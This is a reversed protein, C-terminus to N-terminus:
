SEYQVLTAMGAALHWLVHCHLYWVGPNDADFAVTLTTKPPVLVTDRLAGHIRKGNVEIVQFSHGHLHMPHSMGTDNFFKIAIRQGTRVQVQAKQRRPQAVDFSVGNIPWEYRTM